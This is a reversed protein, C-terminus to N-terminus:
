LSGEQQYVFARIESLTGMILHCEYGYVTDKDLLETRLPAIYGTSADDTDGGPTGYFGGVFCEADPNYVGLGWNNDDVHAAWKEHGEKVGWYEWPPGQNIIETLPANTFPTDGAYTYLNHLDAITIVAPLEQHRSHVDWKDDTRHISIKNQIHVVHHELSIWTEFFCEAPENNMDWLLPISKVYIVTGDNSFDLIQPLNGFADGAGIPNWPWPSWGESQGEERRDLSLGAYYSQQVQRGRDHNNILNRDKDARSLYTISGGYNLNVGVRVVGNDLYLIGDSNRCGFVLVCMGIMCIYKWSCFLRQYSPIKKM